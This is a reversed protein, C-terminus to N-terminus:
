EGSEASGSGREERYPKKCNSCHYFNGTQTGKPSVRAVFVSKCYPCRDFDKTITGCADDDSFAAM